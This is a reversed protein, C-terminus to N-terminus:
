LRGLEAVAAKYLTTTKDCAESSAQLRPRAEDRNGRILYWEGIYFPASCRNYSTGAADLTAEVSRRGLYLEIAAYPWAKSTLRAANAELEATANEGARARALYRFLITITQDRLEISRLLDRSAASFNGKYFYTFGREEYAEPYRPSLKLTADYDALARDHNLLHSWSLGRSFVGWVHKPDRKMTENYDAVARNYDGQYYYFDGRRYYDSATKPQFRSAQRNAEEYDRKARADDGKGKYADGRRHTTVFHNPYFRLAQDFDEIARDYERMDLRSIGRNSYWTGLTNGSYKGSNILRTCAAVSEDGANRICAEEDDARAAGVLLVNVAVFLYAGIRLRLMSAARITQRSTSLSM